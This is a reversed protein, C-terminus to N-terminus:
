EVAFLAVIFLDYVMAPSWGVILVVVHSLDSVLILFAHEMSRSIM